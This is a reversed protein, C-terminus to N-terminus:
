MFIYGDLQEQDQVLCRKNVLFYLHAPVVFFSVMYTYCEGGCVTNKGFRFVLVNVPLQTNLLIHKLICCVFYCTM